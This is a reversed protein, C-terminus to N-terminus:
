IFNSWAYALASTADISQTGGSTTPISVTATPSNASVMGWAGGYYYYLQFMTQNALSAALSTPAIADLASAFQPNSFAIGGLGTGDQSYSDQTTMRLDFGSASSQVDYAYYFDNWATSPGNDLGIVVGKAIGSGSFGATTFPVGSMTTKVGLTRNIGSAPISIALVLEQSYDFTSNSHVTMRYFSLNDDFTGTFVVDGGSASIVTTITHGLFASTFSDGIQKGSTNAEVGSLVPAFLAM